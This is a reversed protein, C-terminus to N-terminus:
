ITSRGSGYKVHRRNISIYIRPSVYTRPFFSSAQTSGLLVTGIGVAAKSVFVVQSNRPCPYLLKSSKLLHKWSKCQVKNQMLKCSILVEARDQWIGVSDTSIWPESKKFETVGGSFSSSLSGLFFFTNEVMSHWMERKILWKKIKIICFTTESCSVVEVAKASINSLHHFAQGSAVGSLNLINYKWLDQLSQSFGVTWVTVLVWM